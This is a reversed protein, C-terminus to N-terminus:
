FADAFRSVIQPAFIKHLADPFPFLFGAGSDRALHAAQTGRGVPRTFAKGHIIAEGMGHGFNKYAQVLIAQDIAAFAQHIPIGYQACRDGIQFHIGFFFVSKHPVDAIWEFVAAPMQHDGGRAGLGHQAVNRNRYMWIIRAILM